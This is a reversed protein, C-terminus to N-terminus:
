QPPAFSPNFAPTPNFGAATSGLGYLQGIFEEKDKGDFFTKVMAFYTSATLLSDSGAQHMPGIRDIELDEAVKNLGGKLKDTSLMMYKMDFLAPFFTGMLDFFEDEESPLPECTLLKLLYGFDYSGQFCLWKVSENLVLGSTMMVEGFRQVDIGENEHKEFDIGSHKLLEISDHAYMDEHLNFKFNFQWCPCGEAYQGESNTFSLGLQILKLLDVNCRLTQYQYNNSNSFQGIPRAVVGPFETDMAVYPHTDILKRIHKMEADLNDGWVDRIEVSKGDITHYVEGKAPTNGLKGTHAGDM